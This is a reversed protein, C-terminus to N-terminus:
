GAKLDKELTVRMGRGNRFDFRVDDVFARILLLGRGTTRMLHDEDRPDAAEAPDFGAGSDQVQVRVGRDTAELLIAVEKSADGQNGHKIANITTERVALGLNLREDENFGALEAMKEAAVHVLDVLQVRSPIVIKVHTQTNM